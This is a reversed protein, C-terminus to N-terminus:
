RNDPFQAKYHPIIQVYRDSWERLRDQEDSSLTRVVKAPSGMVMSGPPIKKGQTILSGAGILSRAGIEVGDLVIAGMGVLVEDGVTCAHLMAMHGVTVDQGIICGHEASLHLVSGDQINSRAGIRISNIDGRLVAQFWVSAQEGIVVDGLVTANPAVFASPHIVPKRSLHFPPNEM